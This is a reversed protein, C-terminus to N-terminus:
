VFRVLKWSFESNLHGTEVWGAPPDAKLEDYESTLLIQGQYPGITDGAQIRKCAKMGLAGRLGVRHDDQPVVYSGAGKVSVEEPLSLLWPVGSGARDAHRCLM